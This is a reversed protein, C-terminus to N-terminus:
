VSKGQTLKLVDCQGIFTWCLLSFPLLFLVAVTFFSDFIMVKKRNKKGIYKLADTNEACDFNNKRL